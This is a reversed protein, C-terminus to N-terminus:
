ASAKQIAALVDSWKESPINSLKGGAAADVGFQALVAIVAANGKKTAMAVFPIRVDDFTLTKAPAQEAAKEAVKEVKTETKSTAPKEVVALHPKTTSVDNAAKLGSIHSILERLANTNEQIAAELSM